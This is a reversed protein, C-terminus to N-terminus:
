LISKFFDWLLDCANQDKSVNGILRKGLYQNGGPWTHGGGKIKILEVKLDPNDPNPYVIRTSTCDDRNSTNPLETEIGETSNGNLKCMFAISKEAGLVHGRRQRFIRIEGEEYPFIPDDTGHIIIVPFPTANKMESTKLKSFNASVLGIAKIKNPLDAALTASMLGGNSIGCAFVNEIDVPYRADLYDIMKSIFGVDDINLRRAEGRKEREPHDNWSKGVGQPYVVIFNEEDALRNFRLNTSRNFKKAVGSGGHLAIVLPYNNEESYNKPLHVFFTRVRGDHTLSEEKDKGFGFNSVTLIALVALITTKM